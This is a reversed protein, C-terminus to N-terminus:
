VARLICNISRQSAEAINAKFKIFRLGALDIPNFIVTTNVPVVFSLLLGSANYVDRFTGTSTDSEMISFSTSTLSAPLRIGVLTMGVVDIVDSIQQSAAINVSLTNDIQPGFDTKFAM